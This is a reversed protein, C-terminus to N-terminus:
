CRANGFNNSDQGATPISEPHTAAIPDDPPSQLTARTLFADLNAMM